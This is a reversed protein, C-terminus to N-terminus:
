WARSTVSPVVAGGLRDGKRSNCGYHAPQHNAPDLPAGGNALAEIHDLSFSWRTRPPASWDIPLGCLSCPLNRRKAEARLVAARRLYRRGVRGIGRQTSPM